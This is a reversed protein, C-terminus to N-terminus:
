RTHSIWLLVALVGITLKQLLSAARAFGGRLDVLPEPPSIRLGQALATPARGLLTPLANVSPVSGRELLRLTDVSFAKQPLVSALGAALKMLPMPLPLWLPPGLGLAARYAALM